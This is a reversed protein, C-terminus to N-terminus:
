RIARRRRPSGMRPGPPLHADGRRDETVPALARWIGAAVAVGLTVVIWVVRKVMVSDALLSLAAAMVTAAAGGALCYAATGPGWSARRHGDGGSSLTRM